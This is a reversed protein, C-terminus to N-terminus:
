DCRVLVHAGGVPLVTKGSVIADTLVDRWRGPVFIKAPEGLVNVALLTERGDVTRGTRTIVGFPSPKGGESVVKVPPRLGAQALEAALISCYTRSSIANEVRFLRDRVAQRGPRMKGYENALLADKGFVVVRGGKKAFAELAAFTADSVRRADPVVVIKAGDFDGKDVKRESLFRVAWGSFSCGAYVGYLSRVYSDRDTMSPVSHLMRFPPPPTRRFSAIEEPACRLDAALRLAAHYTNAMTFAYEGDGHYRPMWLWM